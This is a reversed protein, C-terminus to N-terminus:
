QILIYVCICTYMCVGRICNGVQELNAEVKFQIKCKACEYMKSEELMRVSGTRVITGTIQIMSTVDSARIEGITAKQLEAIPPLEVLRVHFKLKQHLTSSTYSLHQTPRNYTHTTNHQITIIYKLFLHLNHFTKYYNTNNSFILTTNTSSSSSSSQYSM